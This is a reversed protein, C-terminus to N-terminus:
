RELLGDVFLKDIGIDNKLFVNVAYQGSPKTITSFGNEDRSILRLSELPVHKVLEPNHTTIIIQKNESAEELLGALRSALKPHIGRMPEEIVIIEQHEFYLAVILAVAMVTGDSLFEAPLPLITHQESIAFTQQSGAVTVVEVDTVFGLLYNLLNTLSAKRESNMLIQNIVIAINEGHSELEDLGMISGFSKMGELDFNYIRLGSEIRRGVLGINWAGLENSKIESTAGRFGDLLSLSILTSETFSDLYAPEISKSEVLRNGVREIEFWGIRSSEQSDFESTPNTYADFSLKESLVHVTGTFDFELDVSLNGFSPLGSGLPFSYKADSFTPHLLAQFDDITFGISITGNESRKQNLLYKAGGALSVASKLGHTGLDRIFNFLSVLNSKGAANAGVLVNLSSLDLEIQEFSKFNTARIQKIFM